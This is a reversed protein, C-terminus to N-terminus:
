WMQSVEGGRVKMKKLKLLRRTKRVRRGWQGKLWTVSRKLFVSNFKLRKARANYQRTMILLTKMKVKMGGVTLIMPIVMLTKLTKMKIKM